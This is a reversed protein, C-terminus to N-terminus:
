IEGDGVGWGERERVQVGKERVKVAYDEEEDVGDYGGEEEM